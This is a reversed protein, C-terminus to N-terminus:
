NCKGHRNKNKKTAKNNSISCYSQMTCNTKDFKYKLQPNGYLKNRDFTRIWKEFEIFLIENEIKLHGQSKKILKKLTEPIVIANEGFYYFDDSILANIGRLDRDREKLSHVSNPRIELLANGNDFYICDGMHLAWDQDFPKPIKSPIKEKCWLDYEALTMINTIKMAYVLCQSLDQIEGNVYGNKSGTGLVWDGIKAKRRIVPKCIVLTCAGWFPNPAAGDDYRLVYSYIKQKM